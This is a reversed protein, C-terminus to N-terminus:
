RNYGTYGMAPYFYMPFHCIQLVGGSHDCFIYALLYLFKSKAMSKCDPLSINKVVPGSSVPM